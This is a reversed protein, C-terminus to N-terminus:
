FILFVQHKSLYLCRVLHDIDLLYKVLKLILSPRQCKTCLWRAERKCRWERLCLFSVELTKYCSELELFVRLAECGLADKSILGEILQSGDLRVFIDFARYFMWDHTQCLQVPFGQQLCLDRFTSALPFSLILILFCLDSTSVRGVQVVRLLVKHLIEVQDCLHFGAEHTPHGQYM